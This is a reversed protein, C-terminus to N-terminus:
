PWACLDWEHLISGYHVETNLKVPKLTLTGTTHQLLEHFGNARRLKDRAGDGPRQVVLAMITFEQNKISGFQRLKGL